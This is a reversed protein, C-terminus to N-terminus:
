NANAYKIYEKCKETLEYEDLVQKLKEKNEAILELFGIGIREKSYKGDFLLDKYHKMSMSLEHEPIFDYRIMYKIARLIIIPNNKVIRDTEPFYTRITKRKIDEVSQKCVDYAVKKNIDYILMNITFDRGYIDLNLSTTKINNKRLLNRVDVTSFNGKFDCKVGMWEWSLTMTRHFLQTDKVKLADALMGGFKICQSPWASAFDLDHVNDWSEKMAISRPFGGVVFIDKIQYETCINKAMALIDSIIEKKLFLSKGTIYDFINKSAESTDKKRVYEEACKMKTLPISNNCIWVPVVDKYEQFQTAEFEIVKIEENNKFFKKVFPLIDESCILRTGMIKKLFIGNAIVDLINVIASVDVNKTQAFRRAPNIFSSPREAIMKDWLQAQFRPEVYRYMQGDYNYRPLKRIAKWDMTLLGDDEFDQGPTTAQVRERYLLDLNNMWGFLTAYKKMSNSSATKPLIIPKPRRDELLKETLSYGQYEKRDKELLVEMIFDEKDVQIAPLNANVLNIKKELPFDRMPVDVLDRKGELMSEIPAKGMDGFMLGNNFTSFHKYAEPTNTSFQAGIPFANQAKKYWGKSAGRRYPTIILPAFENTNGSTKHKDLRKQNIIPLAFSFFAQEVQESPGESTSGKAHVAEHAITAGLHLMVIDNVDEQNTMNMANADAKSAMLVRNMNIGFVHGGEQNLKADMTDIEKQIEEPAKEEGYARFSGDPKEDIKCGEQKLVSKIKERKIKDDLAPLYVGYAGQNSFNFIFGISALLSSDFRNVLNVADDVGVFVSKIQSADVGAGGLYQEIKKPDPTAGAYWESQAHHKNKLNGALKTRKRTKIIEELTKEKYLAEMVDVKNKVIDCNNYSESDLQKTLWQTQLSSKLNEWGSVEVFGDSHLESVRTVLENEAKGYTQYIENRIDSLLSSKNTKIDVGMEYIQYGARFGNSIKSYFVIKYINAEIAQLSDKNVFKKSAVKEISEGFKKTTNSIEVPSHDSHFYSEFVKDEGIDLGYKELLFEPVTSVSEEKNAIHKKEIIEKFNGRPDRRANLFLSISTGNTEDIDVYIFFLPVGGKVGNTLKLGKWAFRKYSGRGKVWEVIPEWVIEPKLKNFFEIGLSM